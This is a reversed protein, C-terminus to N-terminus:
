KLSRLDRAAYKRQVFHSPPLTFFGFNAISVQWFLWQADASPNKISILDLFHTPNWTTGDV